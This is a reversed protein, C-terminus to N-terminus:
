KMKGTSYLYDKYKEYFEQDVVTVRIMANWWSPIYEIKYAYEKCFILLDYFERCSCPSFNIVVTKSEHDIDELDYKKMEEITM